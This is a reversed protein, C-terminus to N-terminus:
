ASPLAVQWGSVGSCNSSPGAAAMQAHRIRESDQVRWSRSMFLATVLAHPRGSRDGTMASSEAGADVDRVRFSAAQM